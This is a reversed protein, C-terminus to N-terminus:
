VSVPDQPLNKFHNAISQLVDDDVVGARGGGGGGKTTTKPRIYFSKNLANPDLLASVCVQAVQDHTVAQTEQVAMIAPKEQNNNNKDDDDDDDDKKNNNQNGGLGNQAAATKTTTPAHYESSLDIGRMSARAEAQADTLFDPVRVVAYALGSKKLIDEGLYKFYAEREANLTSRLALPSTTTTTTTTSVTAPTSDDLLIAARDAGLSGELMPPKDAAAPNPLILRQLDHRVSSPAVNSPIKADSVYIFEPEPQSRYLKIYTFALYFSQLNNNDNNKNKNNRGLGLRSTFSSSLSSSPVMNTQYRFGIHRVDQGIFPPIDDDDDEDDDSRVPGPKSKRRYVPCFNEFPLRVTTFKNRSRNNSTPKTVTSFDCVYEIGKSEYLGTRVFAQYTGGDSCVRLIFGGFSAKALDIGDEPSERSRLRSSMIAAEAAHALQPPEPKMSSSSSSSSFSSSSMPSSSSSSSSSASMM